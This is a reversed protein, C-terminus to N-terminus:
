LKVPLSPFCQFVHRSSSVEYPVQGGELNSASLTLTNACAPGHQMNRMHPRIVVM